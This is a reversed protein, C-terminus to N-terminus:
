ERKEELHKVIQNVVEWFRSGVDRIKDDKWGKKDYYEHSILQGTESYYNWYRSKVSEPIWYEGKAENIILEYTEPDFTFFSDVTSYEEVIEYEGEVKLQGNAYYELYPGELLYVRRLKDIGLQELDISTLENVYPMEYNEVRMIQGNPYYYIWTGTKQTCYYRGQEKLSGNRYREIWYGHPVSECGCASTMGGLKHGDVIMVGEKSIEVYRNSNRFYKATDGNITDVKIFSYESTVQANCVLSIFFLISIIATRM